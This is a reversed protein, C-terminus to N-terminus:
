LKVRVIAIDDDKIKKLKRESNFFESLYNTQSSSLFSEFTSLSQDNEELGKLYWAAVADSFLLFEDGPLATGSAIVIQSIIEKQMSLLSPVLIPSSNFNESNSLPLSVDVKGNRKHVLCSDGLAITDWHISNDNITFQLGVFAAYSGKSAKEEAYWPLTKQSWMDQLSQGQKALWSQFQERTIAAPEAKVWEEVLCRAWRGSDFSETAGDAVAFRNSKLDIGIADECESPHSDSKQLLFHQSLM